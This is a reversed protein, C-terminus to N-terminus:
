FETPSCKNGKSNSARGSFHKKQQDTLCVCGGNCSYPSDGCCKVDCKNYAFPFLSKPAGVTGDVSQAAPDNQDFSIPGVDKDPIGNGQIVLMKNTEFLKTPSDQYNERKTTTFSCVQSGGVYVYLLMFFVLLVAILFYHSFNDGKM